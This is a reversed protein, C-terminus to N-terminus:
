LNKRLRGEYDAAKIAAIIMEKTVPLPENHIPNDKAM